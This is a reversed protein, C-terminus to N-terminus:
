SGAKRAESIQKQMKTAKRKETLREFYEMFRIDFGYAFYYHKSSEKLTMEKLLPIGVSINFDLANSFTLGLGTGLLPSSFSDDTSLNTVNYLIGSGYILWYLNSVIPQYPAFDKVYTKGRYNYTEGPSKPWWYGWDAFKFKLGIKESVFSFSKMDYTAGTDGKPMTIGKRFYASGVGVTFYFETRHWKNREVNQLKMLFTEVNFEISEVGTKGIRITTFDKVFGTLVGIADRIDDDAFLDKLQHALSLYDSYTTARDFRYLNGVVRHFRDVTDLQKTKVLENIVINAMKVCVADLQAHLGTISPDLAELKRINPVFEARISYVIDSMVSLAKEDVSNLQSLYRSAKRLHDQIISVQEVAAAMLSDRRTLPASRSAPTQWALAMITAGIDKVLPELNKTVLEKPTSLGVTVETPKILGSLDNRFKFEDNLYYLIGINKTLRELTNEVEKYVAKALRAKTREEKSIDKDFRIIWKYENMWEYSVSHATQLVGLDRLRRNSKVAESTLDLILALLNTSNEDTSIKESEIKPEGDLNGSPKRSSKIGFIGISKLLDYNPTVKNAKFLSDLYLTGDKTNAASRIYYDALFTVFVINVTSELIKRTRNEPNTEQLVGRIVNDAFAYLTGGKGDLKELFMSQVFKVKLERQKEAVIEMVLQADLDGKALGLGTLGIQLTPAAHELDEEQAAVDLCLCVAVFLFIRPM